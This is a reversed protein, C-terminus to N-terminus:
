PQFLAQQCASRSQPKKGADRTDPVKASGNSPRGQKIDILRQLKLALKAKQATSLQRRALNDNIAFLKADTESDFTKRIAPVHKLSVEKAIRLRTNGSVVITKGKNLWTILPIQVEMHSEIDAKLRQYDDDTMPPNIDTGWPNPTLDKVAVSQVTDTLGLSRRTKWAKKAPSPKSQEKTQM